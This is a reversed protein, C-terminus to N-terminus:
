APARRWRVRGGGAVRGQWRQGTRFYGGLLTAMGLDTVAQEIVATEAAGSLLCEGALRRARAPDEVVGLTAVRPGDARWPYVVTM